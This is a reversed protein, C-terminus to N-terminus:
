ECAPIGAYYSCRRADGLQPDPVMNLEVWRGIAKAWDEKTFTANKVDVMPMADCWGLAMRMPGCHCEPDACQQAEPDWRCADKVPCFQYGAQV